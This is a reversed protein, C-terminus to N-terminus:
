ASLLAIVATLNFAVHAWIAPGLRRRKVALWAFVLGAPALAIVDYPQFHALGFVISSAVVAIATGFRRELSRLLLGRYFIEEVIPAGVAVILVLLVVDIGGVARDALEEATEGLRDADVGLLDYLWVAVLGIAIQAGFGIVLGIPIDKPEMALGFDDRLRGLGKRVSAWWPVGLLGVWLPVQLLATVWLEVDDLDEEGTVGVYVAVGITSFVISLIWGGVADGMGWRISRPGTAVEETM